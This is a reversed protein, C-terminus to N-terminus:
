SPAAMAERLRESAARALKKTTDAAEKGEVVERKFVENVLVDHIEELDIKVDPFLRRLERRVM